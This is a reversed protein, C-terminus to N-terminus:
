KTKSGEQGEREKNEWFVAGTDYLLYEEEPYM